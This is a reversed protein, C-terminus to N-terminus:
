ANLSMRFLPLGKRSYPLGPIPTAQRPPMGVGAAYVISENVGDIGLAAEIRSDALAMTCFPALGLRTAVLCFTQCIHGADALVIRYARPAPYKWQTRAFVATLLVVVAADGFWWQGNLFRIAEARRAGRRLMELRHTDAAYHYLGPRLGGVRLVLVYAEIPHRAGGSASTKLALKGVAPVRLWGQVGFTLGLLSGMQELSVEGRSFQRWTRRALLVKAFEDDYDPPPLPFQPAKPYRKTVPPMPTTRARRQLTRLSDEPEIRAHVDKTSFHLFSAAPSWAGWGALADIVGGGKGRACELLRARVLMRVARELSTREFNRFQRACAEFTRWRDFFHLIECTLPAANARSRAIYNEFILKGDNWYVVLHRARRYSYKM